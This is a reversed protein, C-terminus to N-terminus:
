EEGKEIRDAIARVMEAFYDRHAMFLNADEAEDCLSHDIRKACEEIVSARILAHVVRAAPGYAEMLGDGDGDGERDWDDGMSACIARAIEELKTM